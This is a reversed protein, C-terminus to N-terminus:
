ERDGPHRVEYCQVAAAFDTSSGRDEGEASGGEMGVAEIRSEEEGVREPNEVSLGSPSLPFFITGPVLIQDVSLGVLLATVLWRCTEGSTQLCCVKKM